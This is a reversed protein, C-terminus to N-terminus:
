IHFPAGVVDNDAMQQDGGGCAKVDALSTEKDLV